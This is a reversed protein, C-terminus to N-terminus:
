CPSVIFRAIGVAGLSDLRGPSELPWTEFRQIGPRGIRAGPCCNTSSGVPESRFRPRCRSADIFEKYPLGAINREQLLHKEIQAYHIPGFAVADIENREHDISRILVPM